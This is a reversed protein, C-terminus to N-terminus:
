AAQLRGSRTRMPSIRKASMPSYSSITSTQLLGRILACSSRSVSSSLHKRTRLLNTQPWQTREMAHYVTPPSSNSLYTTAATMQKRSLSIWRNSTTKLHRISTLHSRSRTSRVTRTVPFTSPPSTIAPACSQISIKLFSDRPIKLGGATSRKTLLM